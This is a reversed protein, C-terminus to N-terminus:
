QIAGADRLDQRLLDINKPDMEVLPLRLPGSPMGMLRMATKIPAPNTEIFLNKMLPTMNFHIQRAKEFEGREFFSVMESMKDPFINAIVSIVGTAGISMLPLASIDDGSLVTFNEDMTAKIIESAKGMNGTAEKIGVINPHQALKAITSVAMDVSTRSPVNYLVMPIDVADAITEFHKLLGAQTPKNYYPTIVLTMDAGADAAHKSYEIAEMTNNSGTGAIVPVKSFEVALDVLYMHEQASMTAAEGTTGCPVIADVGGKVVFEVNKRFGERDIENESTFPTIMAPIVGKLKIM